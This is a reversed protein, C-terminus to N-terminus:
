SMRGKPYCGLQSTALSVWNRVNSASVLPATIGVARQMRATTSASWGIAWSHAWVGLTCVLSPRMAAATTGSRAAATMLAM